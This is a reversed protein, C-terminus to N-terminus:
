VSRYCPPTQEGAHYQAIISRHLDRIHQKIYRLTIFNEHILIMGCTWAAIMQHEHVLKAPKHVVNQWALHVTYVVHTYMQGSCDIHLGMNLTYQLKHQTNSMMYMYSWVPVFSSAKTVDCSKHNFNIKLVWECSSSFSKKQYFNETM